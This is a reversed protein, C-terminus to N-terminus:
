IIVYRFTHNVFFLFWLSAQQAFTQIVTTLDDFEKSEFFAISPFGCPFTQSILILRQCMWVHHINDFQFADGLCNGSPRKSAMQYRRPELNAKVGWVGEVPGEPPLRPRVPGVSRPLGWIPEV